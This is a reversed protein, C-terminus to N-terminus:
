AHLENWGTIALFVPTGDANRGMDRQLGVSQSIWVDHFVEETRLLLWTFFKLELVSKSAQQGMM